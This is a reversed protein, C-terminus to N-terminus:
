PNYQDLSRSTAEKWDFVPFVLCLFTHLVRISGKQDPRTQNVSMINVLQRILIDYTSDMCWISKLIHCMKPRWLMKDKDKDNVVHARPNDVDYVKGFYIMYWTKSRRQLNWLPLILQSLIHFGVLLLLQIYLLRGKSPQIASNQLIFYLIDTFFIWYAVFWIPLKTGRCTCSCETWFQHHM